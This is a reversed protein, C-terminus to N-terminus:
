DESLERASRLTASFSIALKIALLVDTSLWSLPGLVSNTMLSLLAREKEHIGRGQLNPGRFMRRVSPSLINKGNILLFDHSPSCHSSGLHMGWLWTVRVTMLSAKLIM